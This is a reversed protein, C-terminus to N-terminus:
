RLRRYVRLGEQLERYSSAHGSFRLSEQKGLVLWGFTSLSADFLQYARERLTQDFYLLVNRCVGSSILEVISNRQTEDDEVILL